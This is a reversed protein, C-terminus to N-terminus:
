VALRSRAVPMRRLALGLALVSYTTLALGAPIWMVLGGLQQDQIQTLGWPATTRAHVAFLPQNAFALIAGLLSMQLGTASATLFAAFGDAALLALWFLVSSGIITSQMLWYVRNDRMTLDYPGPSHWFWLVIFFLVSAALLFRPSVSQAFPKMGAALLPTAALFLVMHQSVRVSFLAVSLSCLPSILALALISWGGVFPLVASSRVRSFGAFVLYGAMLTFLVVLLIPSLAWTETGPVPASGCFPIFDPM